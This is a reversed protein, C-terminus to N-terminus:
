RAAATAEGAMAREFQSFVSAPDVPTAILGQAYLEDCLTATMTANAEVGSPSWDEGIVATAEEIDALVWPTTEALKRRNAFWRQKSEELANFLSRLVWPERDALDKRIGVIHHAPYVGTRKFYAQEDKRFDPFVRVIPSGPDYFEKPTQSMLADLEGDLLMATLSKGGTADAVYPPLNGQPRGASAGAIFGVTWRISDIQVGAERIMARSWTNGTAPWENTGVRKGVLDQISTIGSGELTYLARHRFGRAPVFPIGVFTHDQVALRAIHRAFSIEGAQISADALTRDLARPTDRDLTLDLDEATVDGAILPGLYDYDKIVLTLALRAMMAEM